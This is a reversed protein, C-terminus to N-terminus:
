YMIIISMMRQITDWNKNMTQCLVVNTFKKLLANNFEIDKFNRVDDTTM